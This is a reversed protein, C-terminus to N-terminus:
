ATGHACEKCQGIIQLSRKEIAFGHRAAIAGIREEIAGDDVETVKGCTRCFLHEHHAGALTTEYHAHPHDFDVKRILGARELESITRYTTARSVSPVAERTRLVLEESDFHKGMSMICGIVARRQETMAGGRERVYQAFM